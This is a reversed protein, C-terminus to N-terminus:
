RTDAKLLENKVPEPLPAGDLWSRAAVRDNRIWTRALKRYAEVRKVDDSIGEIWALAVQPNRNQFKSVVRTVVDDKLRGDDLANVWQTAVPLDQAV